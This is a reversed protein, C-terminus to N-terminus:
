VSAHTDNSAVSRNFYGNRYVYDGTDFPNLRTSLNWPIIIIYDPKEDKLAQLGKKTLFIEKKVM